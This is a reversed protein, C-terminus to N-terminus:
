FIAIRKACWDAESPCSVHRGLISTSVSIDPRDHVAMNLLAGILSRYVAADELSEGRDHLKLYGSDMPTKAPKADKLGFRNAVHDIYGGLSISYKENTRDIQMGLFYSLDGLYVIDFMKKLSEYVKMSESENKSGVVIDNVYILM